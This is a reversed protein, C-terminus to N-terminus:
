RAIRTINKEMRMLAANIRRDMWVLRYALPEGPQPSSILRMFRKVDISGKLRNCPSCAAVINNRQDSGGASRPRVHDRTVSKHNLKCLCYKCRGDQKKLAAERDAKAFAADLRRQQYASIQYRM